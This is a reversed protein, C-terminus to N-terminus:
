IKLCIYYPKVVGMKRFVSILQKCNPYFLQLSSDIFAQSIRKFVIETNSEFFNFYIIQLLTLKIENKLNDQQDPDEDQDTLELLEKISKQELEFQCLEMQNNKIVHIYDCIQVIDMVETKKKDQKIILKAKTKTFKKVFEKHQVNNKTQNTLNECANKIKTQTDEKAGTYKVTPQDKEM